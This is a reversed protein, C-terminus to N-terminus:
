RARLSAPQASGSLRQATAAEDAPLRAWRCGAFSIVTVVALIGFIVIVDALTPPQQRYTAGTGAMVLVIAFIAMVLRILHRVAARVGIMLDRRAIKQIMILIACAALTCLALYAVSLDHVMALRTLIDRM